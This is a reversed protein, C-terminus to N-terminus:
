RWLITVKTRGYRYTRIRSFRSGEFPPEKEYEMVVAGGEKILSHEWLENLAEGYWSLEAYPPDLLVLDFPKEFSSLASRFDQCLVKGANEKLSALNSEIVRAAEPSRDVFIAEKAGRSLMEIGLAGSGAFLDLVRAGPILPSVANSIAERVMSKTPVTCQSPVALQRSRYKGGAVKLM